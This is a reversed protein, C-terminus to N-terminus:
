AHTRANHAGQSANVRSHCVGHAGKMGRMAPALAHGDGAELYQTKSSFSTCLWAVSPVCVCAYFCHGGGLPM